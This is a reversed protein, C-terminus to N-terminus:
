QLLSCKFSSISWSPMATNLSIECPFYSLTLLLHFTLQWLLLLFIWLQHRPKRALVPGQIWGGTDGFFKFVNLFGKFVIWLINQTNLTDTSATIASPDHTQPWGPSCHSVLCFLIQPIARPKTGLVHASVCVCVCVCVRLTVQLVKSYKLHGKPIVILV